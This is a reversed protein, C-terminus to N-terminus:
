VSARSPKGEPLVVALFGAVFLGFLGALIFFHAPNALPGPDRGVDVHLSIDWYMGLLAVLLSVSALASPLAAWGPLGSIRESLEAARALHTLRGTRHGRCIWALTALAVVAGATAIAVQDLAAGGAPEAHAVLPLDAPPPTPLNM